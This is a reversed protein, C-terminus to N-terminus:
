VGTPKTRAIDTFPSPREFPGCIPRQEDLLLPQELCQHMVTFADKALLQEPRVFYSRGSGVDLRHPHADADGRCKISLAASVADLLAGPILPRRAGFPASLEDELLPESGSARRSLGPIQPEALQDCKSCAARPPSRTLKVYGIRQV